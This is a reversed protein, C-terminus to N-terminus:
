RINKVYFWLHNQLVLLVNLKIYSSKIFYETIFNGIVKINLYNSMPAMHSPEFDSPNIELPKQIKIFYNTNRKLEADPLIAYKKM